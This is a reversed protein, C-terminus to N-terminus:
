LFRFTKLINYKNKARKSAFYTAYPMSLSIVYIIKKKLNMLVSLMLIHTLRMKRTHTHTHLNHM